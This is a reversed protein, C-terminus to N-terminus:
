GRSVPDSEADKLGKLWLKTEVAAAYAILVAGLWVLFAVPALFVVALITWM